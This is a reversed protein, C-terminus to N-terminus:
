LGAGVTKVTVDELKQAVICEVGFVIKCRALRFQPPILKAIREASRNPFAVQEKERIILPRPLHRSCFRSKYRHWCRILKAAVNVGPCEHGCVRISVRYGRRDVAAIPGLYERRPQVALRNRLSLRVAKNTTGRRSLAHERTAHNWRRGKCLWNRSVERVNRLRRQRSIRLIVRIVALPVNCVIIFEPLADVEIVLFGSVPRPVVM